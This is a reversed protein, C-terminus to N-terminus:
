KVRTFTVSKLSLFNVNLAFTMFGVMFRESKTTAMFSSQARVVGLDASPCVSSLVVRLMNGIHGALKWSPKSILLKYKVKVSQRM